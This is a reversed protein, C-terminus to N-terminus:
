DEKKNIAEKEIEEAKEAGDSFSEADEVPATSSVVEENDTAIAAPIVQSQMQASNVATDVPSGVVIQYLAREQMAVAAYRNALDRLSQLFTLYMESSHMSVHQRGILNVLDMQSRDIDRNLKKTHKILLEVNQASPNVAIVHMDQSIKEVRKFLELLNNKMEGGFITHRNAVHTVAQDIAYRISKAAERMNSFALYFFHKADVTGANGDQQVAHRTGALGTEGGAECVVQPFLEIENGLIIVVVAAHAVSRSESIRCQRHRLFLKVRFFTDEHDIFAVFHHLVTRQAASEQTREANFGCASAVALGFPLEVSDDVLVPVRHEPDAVALLVGDVGAAASPKIVGSEKVFQTGSRPLMNPFVRQFKVAAFSFEGLFEEVADAATIGHIGSSDGHGDFIGGHKASLIRVRVEGPLHHSKQFRM